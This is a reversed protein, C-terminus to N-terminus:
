VAEYVTITKEVPKVERITSEIYDYECGHYSYYSWSAQFFKGNVKIVSYCSEGEGEGGYEGEMGEFGVSKLISEFLQGSEQWDLEPYELDHNENFVCYITRANVEFGAEELTDFLGKLEPFQGLKSM